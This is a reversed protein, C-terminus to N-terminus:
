VGFLHTIKEFESSSGLICQGLILFVTTTHFEFLWVKQTIHIVIALLSKYREIYLSPLGSALM